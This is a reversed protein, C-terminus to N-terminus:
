GTSRVPMFAAYLDDLADVDDLTAVPGVAALPGPHVIGPRDM